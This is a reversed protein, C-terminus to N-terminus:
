SGYVHQFRTRRLLLAAAGLLLVTAALLVTSMAGARGFALLTNTQTVILQSILSNQPSGLLAPTVFFGLALVFVLVSGAILGPVALPIYVRVFATRPTAGLSSAATLLTRDIARLVAYLPLVMFPLLIQTMGITVGGITGILTGHTIGVASLVRQVPGGQELLGIWAFSRVLLSTWFPLLVVALMISRWRSSVTTMLYAYPFGIAVCTVTVILATEFTRVLVPVNGPTDFFWQYNDLGSREPPVFSTVSQVLSGAVPYGYFVLLWVAAPVLGLEWRRWRAISSM